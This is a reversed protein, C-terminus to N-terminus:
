DHEEKSNMLTIKCKANNELSKSILVELRM